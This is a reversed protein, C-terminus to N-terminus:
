QLLDTEIPHYVNSAEILSNATLTPVGYVEASVAYDKTIKDLLMDFDGDGSLLVV